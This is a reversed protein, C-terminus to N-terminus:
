PKSVVSRVFNEARDKLLFRGQSGQGDAETLMIPPSNEIRVSLAPESVIRWISVLLNMQGVYAPKTSRHGDADYYRLAFAVVPLRHEAASQFLAAKFPLINLGHGTKAEPFFSVCKGQQLAQAVAENVPRIDQRTTRDIFVTGAKAALSGVFPWSRIERKGVFVTPYVAMMVLPDIWSIHNGAGLFVPPMAHRCDSEVKVNMAALLRRACQQLVSRNKDGYTEPLRGVQWMSYLAAASLRVIRWLRLPVPTKKRM